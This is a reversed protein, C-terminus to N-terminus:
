YTDRLVRRLLAELVLQVLIVISVYAVYTLVPVKLSRGKVKSVENKPQGSRSRGTDFYRNVKSM